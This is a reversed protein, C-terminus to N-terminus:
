ATQVVTVICLVIAAGVLGLTYCKNEFLKPVQTALPHLLTCCFWLVLLTLENSSANNWRLSSFLAGTHSCHLPLHHLDNFSAMQQRLQMIFGIIGAYGVNMAALQLEQQIFAIVSLGIRHITEPTPYIILLLIHPGQHQQKAIKLLPKRDESLGLLHTKSSHIGIPRWYRSTEM